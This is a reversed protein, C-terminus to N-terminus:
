YRALVKPRRRRKTLVADDPRMGVRGRRSLREAVSLDDVPIHWLLELDTRLSVAAM